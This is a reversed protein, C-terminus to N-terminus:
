LIQPLQLPVNQASASIPQITYIIKIDLLFICSVTAFFLGMYPIFQTLYENVLNKFVIAQCLKKLIFFPFIPM